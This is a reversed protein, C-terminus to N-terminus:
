RKREDRVNIVRPIRDTFRYRLINLRRREVARLEELTLPRYAELEELSMKSIPKM